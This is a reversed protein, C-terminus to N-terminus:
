GTPKLRIDLQNRNLINSETVGSLYGSFSNLIPYLSAKFLPVNGKLLANRSFMNSISNLSRNGSLLDTRIIRLGRDSNDSNFVAFLNSADSLDRNNLFLTYFDIQSQFIDNPGFSEAAYPRDNFRVDSWVGVVKALAFNNSFIDKNIDVGITIETGAFLYPIEELSTNHKLLDIPYVKGRKM